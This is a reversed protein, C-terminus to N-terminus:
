EEERRSTGPLTPGESQPWPAGIWLVDRREVYAANWAGYVGRPNGFCNAFNHPLSAYQRLRRCGVLKNHKALNENPM